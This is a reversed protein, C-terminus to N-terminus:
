VYIVKVRSLHDDLADLRAKVAGADGNKAASELRRAEESLGHFGYSAGAGVIRQSTTAIFGYDKKMVADRMAAAEDRTAILFPAIFDQYEPDIEVPIRAGTAPAPKPAEVVPAPPPPPIVPPPPIAAKPPEPPPPPLIEKKTEPPPPVVPKAKKPEPPRAIPSAKTLVELLDARRFPKRVTTSFGAELYRRLDPGDANASIAVVLAPATGAALEAARMERAAQIGDKIPMQIDLIVADFAGPSFKAVAQAGDEALEVSHGARELCLSLLSRLSPTDEAALIKM